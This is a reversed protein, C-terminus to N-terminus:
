AAYASGEFVIEMGGKPPKIPTGMGHVKRKLHSSKSVVKNGGSGIKDTPVFGEAYIHYLIPDDPDRKIDIRRPNELITEM